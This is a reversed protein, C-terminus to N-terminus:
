LGAPGVESSVRGPAGADVAASIDAKMIGVWDYLVLPETQPIIYTKKM